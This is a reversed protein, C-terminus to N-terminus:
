LTVSKEYDINNFLDRTKDFPLLSLPTFGLLDPAHFLDASEGRDKGIECAHIHVTDLGARTCRDGHADCIMNRTDRKLKRKYSRTARDRRRRRCDSGDSIRQESPTEFSDSHGREAGHQISHGYCGM